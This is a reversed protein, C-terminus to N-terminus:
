PIGGGMAKGNRVYCGGARKRQQSMRKEETVPRVPAGPESVVIDCSHETIGLTKSRM